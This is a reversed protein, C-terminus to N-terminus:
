QSILDGKSNACKHIEALSHLLNLSKLAVEAPSYVANGSYLLQLRLQFYDKMPRWRGTDVIQVFSNATPGECSVESEETTVPAVLTDLTIAGRELESFLESVRFPGIQKNKPPPSLLNDQTITDTSVCWVSPCIHDSSLWMSKKIRKVDEEIAGDMMMSSNNDISLARQKGDGPYDISFNQRGGSYLDTILLM